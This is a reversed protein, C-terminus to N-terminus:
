NETTNIHVKLILSVYFLHYQYVKKKYVLSYFGEPSFGRTIKLWIDSLKEIMFSHLFPSHEWIRHSYDIKGLKPWIHQPWIEDRSKLTMELNRM